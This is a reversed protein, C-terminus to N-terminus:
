KGGVEGRLLADIASLQPATSSSNAHSAASAARLPGVCRVTHSGAAAADAAAAGGNGASTPSSGTGSASAPSAGTGSVVPLGDQEDPRAAPQRGRRLTGRKPDPRAGATGAASDVSDRGTRTVYTRWAPSASAMAQSSCVALPGLTTPSSMSHFTRGIDTRRRYREQRRRGNAREAVRGAARPPLESHQAGRRM